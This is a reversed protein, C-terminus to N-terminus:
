LKFNLILIGTIKGSIFAVFIILKIYVVEVYEMVSGNRIKYLAWIIELIYLHYLNKFNYTTKYKTGRTKMNPLM